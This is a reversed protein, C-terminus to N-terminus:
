IKTTDVSESPGFLILETKSENLCLLYAISSISVTPKLPLYLRTDDAYCHFSVGYKSFIQGLPLMYLCFFPALVSGQPIGFSLPASTLMSDGMQVSFSRNQLYSTIWSLANGRISVCTELHSILIQTQQWVFTM